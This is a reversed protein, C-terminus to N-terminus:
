SESSGLYCDLVDGTATVTTLVILTRIHFQFPPHTLQSLGNLAALQKKHKPYLCEVCSANPGGRLNGCNPCPHRPAMAIPQVMDPTPVTHAVTARGVDCCRARGKKANVVSDLM